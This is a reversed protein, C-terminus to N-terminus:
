NKKQYFVFASLLGAIAALIIAVILFYMWSMATSIVQGNIQGYTNSIFKMVTNSDTTFSDIITYVANVLIMPSIMPLTIKWFTEWATAGDISCSEYIAPSISQLGALFILMQVGSRNVIDYINNIMGTVYEVLETGVKMNAFLMEIDMASVIEAAASTGSGDDIGEASDMYDGIINQAEIGEMIGTSLIVPIFFIARFAGRGVMDQNLLVAMFLSFIIIAPIDFALDKLGAVLTQVFSANVFLAEHYNEFGVWTLSFGGGQLNNIRNFSLYISDWIVPLYILVLGIIFPLVFVWGARAKRRDLSAIKKKKKVPAKAGVVKEANTM